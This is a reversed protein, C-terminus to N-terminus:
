NMMDTHESSITTAQTATIPSDGDIANPPLNSLYNSGIVM